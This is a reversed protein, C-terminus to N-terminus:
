ASESCDAAKHGCKQARGRGIGRIDFAASPQCAMIARSTM